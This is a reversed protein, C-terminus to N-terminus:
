GLEFSRPTEDFEIYASMARPTSCTSGQAALLATVSAVFSAIDSRDVRTVHWSFTTGDESRTCRVLAPPTAFRLTVMEGPEAARTRALLEVLTTVIPIVKPARGFRAELALAGCRPCATEPWLAVGDHLSPVLVTVESTSNTAALAVLEDDSLQRDTPSSFRDFRHHGRDVAPLEVESPVVRDYRFPYTSSALNCQRCIIHFAFGSM